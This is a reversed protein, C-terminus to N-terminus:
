RQNVMSLDTLYALFHMNSVEIGQYLLEFYSDIRRVLFPSHSPSASFPVLKTLTLCKEADSLIFATSLFSALRNHQDCNNAAIQFVAQIM